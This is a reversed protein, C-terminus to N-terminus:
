LNGRTILPEMYIGYDNDFLHFLDNRVFYANLKERTLYVFTYGKCNALQIWATISASHYDTRNWCYQSEYKVVKDDFGYSSNIEVCIVKPSCYTFEKWLWWDMGDVDIALFDINTAVNYKHFLVNINEREVFEKHLNISKNEYGGDFMTGTWNYQERLVRTNCELGSEVGIEVFQKSLPVANSSLINFIQITVGDEGFQSYVSKEYIRLSKAIRVNQPNTGNRHLRCRTNTLFRFLFHIKGRYHANTCIRSIFYLTM